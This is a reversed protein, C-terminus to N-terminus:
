GDTRRGARGRVELRPRQPHGPWATLLGWYPAKSANTATSFLSRRDVEVSPTIMAQLAKFRQLPGKYFRAERQRTPTFVITRSLDPGRPPKLIGAMPLLRPAPNLRPLGSNLMRSGDIGRHTEREALTRRRYHSPISATAGAYEDWTSRRGMGRGPCCLRGSGPRCDANKMRLEPRKMSREAEDAGGNQMGDELRPRRACHRGVFCLQGTLKGRQGLRGRTELKVGARRCAQRQEETVARSDSWARSAAALAARCRLQAATRRDRPVVYRRRCQKGRRMYYVWWGWRGSKPADIIGELRGERLSQLATEVTKSPKRHTMDGGQAM